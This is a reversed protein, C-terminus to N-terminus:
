KKLLAQVKPSLPLPEYNEDMPVFVVHYNGALETPYLADRAPIGRIRQLEVPTTRSSECDIQKGSITKGEVLRREVSKKIPEYTYTRAGVVVAWVCDPATREANAEQGGSSCGTLLFGVIMFTAVARTM